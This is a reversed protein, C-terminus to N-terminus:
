KPGRQQCSEAQQNSHWYHMKSHPWRAETAAFASSLNKDFRRGWRRTITPIDLAVILTGNQTNLYLSLASPEGDEL